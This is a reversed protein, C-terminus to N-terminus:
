EYKEDQQQQQSDGSNRPSSSLGKEVNKLEVLMSDNEVRENMLFNRFPDVSDRMKERCEDVLVSARDRLADKVDDRVSTMRERFQRKVASRRYPLWGLGGVLLTGGAVLGSWDLLSVAVLGSVGFASAQMAASTMVGSSVKSVFENEMDDFIMTKESTATTAENVYRKREDLLFRHASKMENSSCSSSHRQVRDALYNVGHHIQNSSKRLLWDVLDQTREDVRRLSDGLVEREFKSRLADHGGVLSIINTIQLEEEFFEDARDIVDRLSSDVLFLQGELDRLVDNQWSKNQDELLNLLKVDEEIIRGRREISELHSKLVRLGVGCISELKINTASEESMTDHIFNLLSDFEDNECSSSSSSSQTKLSSVMFETVDKEGLTKRAADRVFDRVQKRESDDTLLDVKNVVIVIQKRWSRILNLFKRESDTYPRDASTTFMVLDARPILSESIEQHGKVIANTGPSDIIFGRSLWSMGSDVGITEIESKLFSPSTANKKSTVAHIEDTTPTPGVRLMDKGVIRNILSSKGSNFEGVVCLLFLEDLSMISGKVIEADENEDCRCLAAHLNLLHSRVSEVKHASSTTIRRNGYKRLVHSKKLTIVLARRM